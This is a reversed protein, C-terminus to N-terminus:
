QGCGRPLRRTVLAYFGCRRKVYSCNKCGRPSDTTLRSRVAWTISLYDTRSSSPPGPLPDSTSKHGDNKGRRIGTEGHGLSRVLLKLLFPFAQVCESSGHGDQSPVGRHHHRAAARVNATFLEGCEFGFVVCQDSSRLDRAQQIARLGAERSELVPLDRVQALHAPLAVEGDRGGHGQHRAEGLRGRLGFRLPQLRALGALELVERRM